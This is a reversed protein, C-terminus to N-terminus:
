LTADDDCCQMNFGGVMTILCSYALITYVYESPATMDCDTYQCRAASIKRMRYTSDISNASQPIILKIHIYSRMAVKASM